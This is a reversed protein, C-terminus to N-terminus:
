GKPPIPRWIMNPGLYAETEVIKGIREVGDASTCSINASCNGRSWNPTATTFLPAALKQM